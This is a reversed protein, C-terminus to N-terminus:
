PEGCRANTFQLICNAACQGALIGAQPAYGGALVMLIPTRNRVAARWVRRDREFLGERSVALKGLPDGEVIDTGAIYIILQPRNEQFARDLGDQVAALYAEDGAMSRLPYAYTVRRLAAADRPYIDQNFVDLIRVAPDDGLLHAIGNGQHADLDVILVRDLSASQRRVALAIAVDSFFCFGEGRDRKAHHLGGKLNISWGCRLASQLGSRTGGGCSRQASVIHEHLQQITNRTLAPISLVRAITEVRNLSELLALPHVLLIEDDRLPPPERFGTASIDVGAAQLRALFEAFIRAPARVESPHSHGLAAFNPTYSSSYYVPPTGDDCFELPAPDRSSDQVATSSGSTASKTDDM